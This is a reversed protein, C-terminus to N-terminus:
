ESEFFEFAMTVKNQIKSYYVDDNDRYKRAIAGAIFDVAQLCPCQKSDLHSVNISKMLGDALYNDFRERASGYLFRDIVIEVTGKLEYKHIISHLLLRCLDNYLVQPEVCLYSTLLDVRDKRLFVYAIDNNTKAVCELVRRKSPDDSEKFKLESKVKYKKKLTQRVDRICRRIPVDERAILAALIFYPDEESVRSGIGGLNGSEDIYVKM